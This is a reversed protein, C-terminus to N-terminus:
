FNLATVSRHNASHQEAKRLLAQVKKRQRMPLPHKQWDQEHQDRSPQTPALNLGFRGKLKAEDYPILSCDSVCSRAWLCRDAIVPGLPVSQRYCGHRAARM